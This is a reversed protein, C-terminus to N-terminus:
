GERHQEADLLDEWLSRYAIWRFLPARSGSVHVDPVRLRGHGYTCIYETHPVGERMVRGYNGEALPMRLKRVCVRCRYVQDVACWWGLLFAIFGVVFVALTYALDSGLRPYGALLGGPAPPIVWGAVTWVGVVILGAIGLKVALWLWYRIHRM